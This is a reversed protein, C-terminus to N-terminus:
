LCNFIPGQLMHPLQGTCIIDVVVFYIDAVCVNQLDCLAKAMAQISLPSHRRRLRYYLELARIDIAVSPEVPSCGLLGNRLLSVNAPENPRQHITALARDISTKLLIFLVHYKSSFRVLSEFQLSM